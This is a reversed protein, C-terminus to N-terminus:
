RIKAFVKTLCSKVAKILQCRFISGIQYLQYLPLLSVFLCVLYSPRSKPTGKMIIRMFHAGLEIEKTKGKKLMASYQGVTLGQSAKRGQISVSRSVKPCYHHLKISDYRRSRRWILRGRMLGDCRV